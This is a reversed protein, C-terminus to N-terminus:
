TGTIESKTTKKRAFLHFGGRPRTDRQGVRRGKERAGDREGGEAERTERWDRQNKGM